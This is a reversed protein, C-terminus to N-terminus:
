REKILITGSMSGDRLNSLVNLVSERGSYRSDGWGSTPVKIPGCRKSATMLKGFSSTRDNPIYTLNLNRRLTPRGYHPAPRWHGITLRPPAAETFRSSM